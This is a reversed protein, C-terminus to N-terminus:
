INKKTTDNLGATPPIESDRCGSYIQVIEIHVQSSGSETTFHEFVFLPQM